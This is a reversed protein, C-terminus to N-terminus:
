DPYYPKNLFLGSLLEKSYNTIGSIGVRETSHRCQNSKTPLEPLFVHQKMILQQEFTDTGLMVLWLGQAYGPNKKEWVDRQDGPKQWVELVKRGTLIKLKKRVVGRRKFVVEHKCSSSNNLVLERQFSPSGEGGM